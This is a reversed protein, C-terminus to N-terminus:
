DILELEECYKLYSQRKYPNGWKFRIDVFIIFLMSYTYVIINEVTVVCTIFGVFCM